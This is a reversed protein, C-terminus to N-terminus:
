KPAYLSIRDQRSIIEKIRVGYNGRVSVVEGRAVVTGHVILEVHDSVNRDLEILSGTTVRLVDGIPMKARGLAVSLPLELDMLRSLMPSMSAGELAAPAPLAAASRAPELAPSEPPDLIARIRPDIALALSPLETGNLQVGVLAYELSHFDPAAGLQGEGARLSLGTQLGVV